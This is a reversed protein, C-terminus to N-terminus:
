RYKKVLIKRSTSPPLRPAGLDIRHQEQEQVIMVVLSLFAFTVICIIMSVLLHTKVHISELAVSLIVMLAYCVVFVVIVMGTGISSKRDAMVSTSALGSRDAVTGGNVGANKSTADDGNENNHCTNGCRLLQSSQILGWGMFATLVALFYLIIPIRLIEGIWAGGISTQGPPRLVTSYCAVAIGFFVAVPLLRLVARKWAATPIYSEYPISIEQVDVNEVNSKASENNKKEM